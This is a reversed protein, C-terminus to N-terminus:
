TLNKFEIGASEMAKKTCNRKKNEKEKGEKKTMLWLLSGVARKVASARPLCHERNFGKILAAPGCCWLEIANEVGSRL